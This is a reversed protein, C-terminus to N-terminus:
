SLWDMGVIFGVDGMVIPVLNIPFEVGFIELVCWRFVDTAFVVLKDAISVRVPRSMAERRISIHRIFALSVFSRSAGLDFLVLTPVSSVLLTGVYLVTYACCIEFYYLYLIRVMWSM